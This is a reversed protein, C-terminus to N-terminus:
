DGFLNKFEAVGAQVHSDNRTEVGYIIDWVPAIKAYFDVRYWFNPGIERRYKALVAETLDRGHEWVFGVFDIAPDGVAVDGWDIVGELTMNNGDVLIHNVSLDHHMLAPEFIFNNEDILYSEWFEFLRTNVSPPLLPAVLANSKQFLDFYMSRWGEASYTPTGTPVLISSTANHLESIFQAMQTILSSIEPSDGLSSRDMPVGQIKRYGVFPLDGGESIFEFQPIKVSLHPALQPLLQKERELQDLVDARRPFRFIFEDNVDLVIYDWGDLMPTVSRVRLEPVAIRILNVYRKQDFDTQNQM